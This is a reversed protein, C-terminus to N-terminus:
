FGKAKLDQDFTTKPEKGAKRQAVRDKAVAQYVPKVGSGAKYMKKGSGREFVDMELRRYQIPNLNKELWRRFENRYLAGADWMIQAVNEVEEDTHDAIVTADVGMDTFFGHVVTRLDLPTEEDDMKITDPDPLRGYVDEDTAYMSLEEKILQKLKSKTIKM